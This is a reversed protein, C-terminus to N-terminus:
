EGPVEGPDNTIGIAAMADDHRMTKWVAYVPEKWNWFKWVRFYMTAEALRIFKYEGLARFKEATDDDFNANITAFDVTHKEHRYLQLDIALSM